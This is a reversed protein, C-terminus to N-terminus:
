LLTKRLYSRLVRRRAVVDETMEDPEIGDAAMRDIIDQGRDIDSTRCCIDLLINFSAKHLLSLLCLRLRCSPPRPFPDSPAHTHPFFPHPPSPTTSVRQLTKVFIIPLKCNTLM